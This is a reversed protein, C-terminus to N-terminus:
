NKSNILVRHFEMVTVYDTGTGNEIVLSTDSITKVLYMVPAIDPASIFALQDGELTWQMDTVDIGNDVILRGGEEFTLSFTTGYFNTMDVENFPTYQTAKDMLWAGLITPDATPEEVQPDDTPTPDPEPTPTPDCSVLTLGFFALLIFLYNRMNKTMFILKLHKHINFDIYSEM